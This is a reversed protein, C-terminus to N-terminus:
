PAPTRGYRGPRRPQGRALDTTAGARAPRPLLGGPVRQMAGKSRRAREPAPRRAPALGRRHRARPRGGERAGGARGALAARRSSRPSSSCRTPRCRTASPPSRPPTPRPTRSARTSGSSRADSAHVARVPQFATWAAALALVLVLAAALGHLPPVSNAFRAIRSAHPWAAPPARRRPHELRAAAARPRRGLGRVAARRRRQRARVVDLRGGLPRRLHSVVVALTVMGSASPTWHCAATAGTSAPRGRPPPWGPSRPSCRLPSGPGASTPSRRCSTATRTGCRWRTPASARACRRTPAPAPASGRRRRRPRRAGGELVARPRVVDRDPPRAHQGADQREPRDAPGVDQLGPRQHRRARDRARDARRGAAAVGARRAGRPRRAPAHAPRRASPSSSTRRALGAVLLVAAM